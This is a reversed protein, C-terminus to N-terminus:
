DKKTKTLIAAYVQQYNAVGGALDYYDFAAKRVLAKDLKLLDGVARATQEYVPKSFERIVLGSASDEVIRGTDGIDNCILPLGMAMIEGQKTPSSARKSYADKIFFVAWDSLSLFLPVEKRTAPQVIIDKPDVGSASAARAIKEVPDQTIFLFRAAPYTTKLVRFFDLMEKELYWGGLSGLYSLVQEGPRIGLAKKQEAVQAADVRSYDFHKLDVCCPIVTVKGAPVEYRTELEQKGKWTLSIIHESERFYAKEKKKYYNYFFRFFPNKLNWQGNDVREDVWFGRMDFLFPVGFAHKLALGASAAVYSRCHTFDFREKKWLSKVKRHLQWVDYIKSLFPPRRTFMMPHWTIGSSNLLQRIFEGQKQYRAPKEFSILSIRHGQAVLGQLYPIVQSQGLPDTMGDYSIYLVKAAM